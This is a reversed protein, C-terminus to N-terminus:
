WTQAAAWTVLVTPGAAAPPRLRLHRRRDRRRRAPPRPLPGVPPKLHHASWVGTHGAAGFDQTFFRKVAQQHIPQRMVQRAAQESEWATFTFLRDGIGVGMWSLFGPV